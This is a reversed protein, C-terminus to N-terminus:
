GFFDVAEVVDHDEGLNETFARDTIVRDPTLGIEDICWKGDAVEDLMDLDLNDTFVYYKGVVITIFFPFVTDNDSISAPSNLATGKGYTTEGIVEGTGYYMMASTLAEAASATSKNVLVAIPVDIYFNINTTFPQISGDKNQLEIIPINDSDNADNILYSGIDSLIGSSGGGNGRLDLILYENADNQFEDICDAFDVSASGTFSLLKIYGINEALGAINNIYYAQKLTLDEKICHFDEDLIVGDRMITIVLETGAGGVSKGSFYSYSTGEVREGNIAYIHDGRQMTYAGEEEGLPTSLGAAPTNPHVYTIRYENYLTVELSLGIGATSQSVLASALQLSSYRDLSSVFAIAAAVDASNYDLDAYYNDECYDMVKLLFDMDNLRLYEEPTLSKLFDYEEQTVQNINETTCGTFLLTLAMVMVIVITFKKM